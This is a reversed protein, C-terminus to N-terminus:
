PSRTEQSGFVGQYVFSAVIAGLIPGFWYVWHHNWAGAILAPGFSRSPNVSAGTMPGICLIVATVTLGIAFGGVAANKGVGRDDVATGLVAFMLFFAGIAELACAQGPRTLTPDLDNTYVGLTAGLNTTAIQDAFAGQFLYKLAFAALAAGVLQAVLYMATRSTSQKGIVLLGFSIAPNIQGGSIHMTATVMIGLILGHALAIAVLDAGNTIIIAGGGIFTLAFTGILEALLARNAPM